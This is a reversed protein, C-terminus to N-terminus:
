DRVNNEICLATITISAQGRMSLLDFVRSTLGSTRRLKRLLYQVICPM